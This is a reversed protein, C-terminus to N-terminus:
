YSLVDRHFIIYFYEWKGCVNSNVDFVFKICIDKPSLVRQLPVVMQSKSLPHPALIKKKNATPL